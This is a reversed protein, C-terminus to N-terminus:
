FIVKWAEIVAGMGSTMIVMWSTNENNDILYLLVVVQIFVNTLIQGMTLIAFAFLFFRPRVTRLSVGVLEKKNRWHSVDSTFALMEFRTNKSIWKLM